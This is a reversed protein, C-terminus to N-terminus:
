RDFGTARGGRRLLEKAQVACSHHLCPWPVGNVGGCGVCDGSPGAVHLAIVEDPMSPQGAMFEVVFWLDHPEETANM